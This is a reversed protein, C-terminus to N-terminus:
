ANNKLAWKNHKATEYHRSEGRGMDVYSKNFYSGCGCLTQSGRKAVLAHEKLAKKEAVKKDLRAKVNSAM